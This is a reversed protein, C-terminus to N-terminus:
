LLAVGSNVTYHYKHGHGKVRSVMGKARLSRTYCNVYSEGVDFYGGIESSVCGPHHKIYPLFKLEKPTLKVAMGDIAWLAGSNIASESKIKRVLDLM